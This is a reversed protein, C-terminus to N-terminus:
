KSDNKFKLRTANVLTSSADLQGKVEVIVPAPGELQSETGNDFPLAASYNVTSGRLVFTKATSNLQSIAGELTIVKSQSERLRVESAVLTGSVLTGKVHVRTGVALGATGETFNARSADVPVGSVSFLANSAFATVLGELQAQAKDSPTDQNARLRIASWLGAGSPARAELRLKVLAGNSFAAADASSLGAFSITEAGIQLTRAAVQLNSVQGSIKYHRPQSQLEIRTAQLTNTTTNLFGHVELVMGATVSGWGLPLTSSDFVTNADVLVKQGIITFANGASDVAAVPGLLESDFAIASATGSGSADVSGQVRVVMGLKIDSRSRAGDDDSVAASSDDFRQDNVIISGFGTVSGVTYASFAGTGGSGVGASNSGGGCAVVAAAILVCMGAVGSLAAITGLLHLGVRKFWLRSRLKIRLLATYLKNKM